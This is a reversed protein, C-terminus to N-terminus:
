GTLTVHCNERTTGPPAARRARDSLYLHVYTAPDIGLIVKCCRRLHGDSIALDSRLATLDAHRETQSQLINELDAVVDQCRHPGSADESPGTSLCRVLSHILQQEMGHAAELDVIRQPRMGAARIAAAHLRVFRKCGAASPRWRQALSPMKFVKGTLQDFYATFEDAPLSVAGWCSPGETRMHLRHSPGCILIEGKDLSIGSCIPSPQDGIAFLALLKDPLVTLFGIRSAREHVAWLRLRQLEVQALRSRFDERGTVILHVDGANRLAEELDGETSFNAIMSAPMTWGNPEAEACCLEPKTAGL